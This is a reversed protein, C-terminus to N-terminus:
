LRSPQVIAPPANSDEVSAPVDPPCFLIPFVGVTSLTLPEVTLVGTLWSWIFTKRNQLKVLYEGQEVIPGDSRAYVHHLEPLLHVWQMHQHLHLFRIASSGGGLVVLPRKPCKAHPVAHSSGDSGTRSDTAVDKCVADVAPAAPLRPAGVSPDLFSSPKSPVSSQLSPPFYKPLM